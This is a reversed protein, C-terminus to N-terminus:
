AKPKKKKAAQKKAKEEQMFKDFKPKLWEYCNVKNGKSDTWSHGKIFRLMALAEAQEARRAKAKDRREQEKELKRIEAGAM